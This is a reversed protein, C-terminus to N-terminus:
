TSKRKPNPKTGNKKKPTPTKKHKKRGSPTDQGSVDVSGQKKTTKNTRSQTTTTNRHKQPTGKASIRQRKKPSKTKQPTEKTSKKKTSARRQVNDGRSANKAPRRAQQQLKQITTRLEKTEKAVNQRILDNLTQPDVTPESNLQRAVNDTAHSTIASTAFKQLKINLM